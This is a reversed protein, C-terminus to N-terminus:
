LSFVFEDYQVGAGGPHALLLENSAQMGARWDLHPNEEQLLLDCIPVAKDVAAREPM